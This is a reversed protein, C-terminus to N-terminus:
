IFISGLLALVSLMVVHVQGRELARTARAAAGVGDGKTAM